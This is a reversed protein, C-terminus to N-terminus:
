RREYNKAKDMIAFRDVEQTTGSMVTVQPYKMATQIAITRHMDM